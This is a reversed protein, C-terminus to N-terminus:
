QMTNIVKGFAEKIKDIVDTKSATTNAIEYELKVIMDYLRAIEAECYEVRACLEAIMSEEMSKIM